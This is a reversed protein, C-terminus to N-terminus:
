RDIERQRERKRERQIETEREKERKKVRETQRYRDLRRNKKERIKLSHMCSTSRLITELVATYLAKRLKTDLKIVDKREEERTNM